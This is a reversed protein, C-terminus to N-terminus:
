LLLIISKSMLKFYVYSYYIGKCDARQQLSEMEMPVVPLSINGTGFDILDLVDIRTYVKLDNKAQTCLEASGEKRDVRFQEPETENVGNLFLRFLCGRATSNEAFTCRLLM